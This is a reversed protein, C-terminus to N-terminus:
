STRVFRDNKLSKQLGENRAVHMNKEAIEPHKKLLEIHKRYGDGITSNEIVFKVVDFDEPEDVTLRYRAFRNNKLSIFGKRFSSNKRMHLTVHERESFFSAALATRALADRTFLEIEAVGEPFTELGFNEAGNVYDHKKIDFFAILKNILKYDVLPCDATLRMILPYTPYKLACQYYRNLVDDESGRFCDTNLKKCLSEIKDDNKKTTTAVVIKGISKALKIRRLQYELLPIGAAKKLVKGPLRTSDMRAQIICLANRM